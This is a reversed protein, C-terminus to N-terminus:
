NQMKNIINKTICRIKGWNFKKKKYHNKMYASNKKLAEINKLSIGEIEAENFFINESIEKQDYYETM